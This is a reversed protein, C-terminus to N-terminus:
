RLAREGPRRRSATREMARKRYRLADDEWDIRIYGALGRLSTLRAPETHPGGDHRDLHVAALGAARAAVVDLNYRDGVHLAAGPEVELRECVSLFARAEPKAAGLEEATFVPGITGSLGIAAVKANQQAATGNTLVATPLGLVALDHLAPLVDDFRTWAAEYSAAYGAFVADLEAETGVPHGILPLFDRLRRRRQEQWSIERAQWAPFHREEAAFWAAALDDTPRAGLSPLWARLATTVSAEHDMLTGDLDFIVVAPRGTM